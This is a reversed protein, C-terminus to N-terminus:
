ILKQKGANPISGGAAFKLLRQLTSPEEAPDKEPVRTYPPIDRPDLRTQRLGTVANYAERVDKDKFVTKRLEPDKTLDVNQAAETGALTALLEYMGVRGQKEIFEPTMYGNVVGYKEKLYPLAQKLGSLFAKSKGSDGLLENFKDRVAVSHGLNQRALLHETEHAVTSADASPAKFITQDRRRNSDAADVRNSDTILGKVNTGELYPLDRVRLTPLGATTSPMRGVTAPVSTLDRIGGRMMDARTASDPVYDDKQKTAM